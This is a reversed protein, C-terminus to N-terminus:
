PSCLCVFLFFFPFSFLFIKGEYKAVSERRWLIRYKLNLRNTLLRFLVEMLLSRTHNEVRIDVNKCQAGSTSLLGTSSKLSSSSCKDRLFGGLNM